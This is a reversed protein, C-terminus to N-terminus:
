KKNIEVILSLQSVPHMFVGGNRSDTLCVRLNSLCHIDKVLEWKDEVMHSLSGM